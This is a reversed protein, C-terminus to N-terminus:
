ASKDFVIKSAERMYAKEIQQRSFGCIGDPTVWLQKVGMNMQKDSLRNGNSVVIRDRAMTIQVIKVDIGWFAGDKFAVIDMPGVPCLNRFVQYGNEMLWASAILEGWAGRNAKKSLGWEGTEEWFKQTTM